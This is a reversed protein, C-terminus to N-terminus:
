CIPSGKLRGAGKKFWIQFAKQFSFNDAAKIKYVGKPMSGSVQILYRHSLFKFLLVFAALVCLSVILPSFRKLNSRM